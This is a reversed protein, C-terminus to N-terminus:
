LNADDAHSYWQMQGNMVAQEYSPPPLTSPCANSYMDAVPPYSYHHLTTSPGQPQPEILQIPPSPTSFSSTPSYRNMKPTAADSYPGGGGGGYGVSGLGTPAGSVSSSGSTSEVQGSDRKSKKEKMRRNQFWIKIQRETLRLTRALDIRRARNLYQNNTFSEELHMLQESSYATRQRKQKERRRVGAQTCQPQPLPATNRIDTYPPLPAYTQAYYPDFTNGCYSNYSSVVNDYDNLHATMTQQQYTTSPPLDSLTSSSVSVPATTPTPPNASTPELNAPQGRDLDLLTGFNMGDM